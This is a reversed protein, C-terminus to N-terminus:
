GANGNGRVSRVVLCHRGVLGLDCVAHVPKTPDYPVKTIRDEAEAKMMENAFIAGDVTQRCLGEWVQQYERCFQPGQLAEMELKLTEPFWPNDWYTSRSASAIGAAPKVVFRQYTEDTEL